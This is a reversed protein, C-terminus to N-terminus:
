FTDVLIYKKVKYGCKFLYLIKLANLHKYTTNIILTKQHVSANGNGIVDIIGITNNGIIPINTLTYKIM